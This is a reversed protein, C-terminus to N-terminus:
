FHSGVDIVGTESFQIKMDIEIPDWGVAFGRKIAERRAAHFVEFSDTEVLFFVHHKKPDLKALAKVYDSDPRTLQDANDGAVGARPVFNPSVSYYITDGSVTYSVNPEFSYYKNGINALKLREVKKEFDSVGNEEADKWADTAEKSLGDTDPFLVTDERCVFVIGETAGESLIPTVVKGKAEGACLAAFIVVFFLSGIVNTVIDMFSDLGGVSEQVLTGSRRM